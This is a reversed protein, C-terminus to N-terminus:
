HAVMRLWATTLHTAFADAEKQWAEESLRRNRLFFMLTSAMYVHAVTKTDVQPTIEGRQKRGELFHELNSAGEHIVEDLLGGIDPNILAEGFLISSLAAERHLLDLWVTAVRQMVDALPHATTAPDQLMIRLGGLFVHASSTVARVLDLKTPFYRFILGEAVGVEQAIHRTTTKAVGQEAFLRAATDIIQQRRAAAQQQRMTLNVSGSTDTM